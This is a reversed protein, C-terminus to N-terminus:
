GLKGDVTVEAFPRHASFQRVLPETAAQYRAMDDTWWRRLRGAADGGLSDVFHGLGHGVIAGIAGDNAVDSASPDFRPAQLLAASFNYANQHVSPGPSRRWRSSASEGCRSIVTQEPAKSAARAPSSPSRWHM